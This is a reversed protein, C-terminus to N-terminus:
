IQKLLRVKEIKKIKKLEFMLGQAVRCWDAMKNRDSALHGSSLTTM